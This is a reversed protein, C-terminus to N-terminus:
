ADDDLADNNHRGHHSHHHRHGNSSGGHIRDDNGDDDDDDDDDGYMIHNRIDLYIYAVLGYLILVALPVVPRLAKLISAQQRHGLRRNNGGCCLISLGELGMYGSMVAWSIFFVCLSPECCLGHRGSPNMMGRGVLLLVVMYGCLFLYLLGLTLRACLFCKPQHHHHHREQEHQQEQQDDHHLDRLSGTTSHMQSEGQHHQHPSHGAVRVHDGDDHHALLSSLAEDVMCHLNATPAAVEPTKDQELDPREHETSARNNNNHNNNNNNSSSDNKHHVIEDAERQGGERQGEVVSCASSTPSLSLLPEQLSGQDVSSDM